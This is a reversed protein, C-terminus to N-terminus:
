FDKARNDALTKMRCLEIKFAEIDWSIRREKREKAIRQGSEETKDEKWWRHIAERHIAVMGGGKTGYFGRVSCFGNTESNFGACM